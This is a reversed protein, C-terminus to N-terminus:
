SSPGASDHTRLRADQEVGSSAPLIQPFARDGAAPDNAPGSLEALLAAFRSTVKRRDYRGEALRRARQGMATLEGVHAAAWRVATALDAPDAPDAALGVGEEAVLRCLESGPAAVVLVPTGSALIGYLKSPMLCGTLRPDTSVLHLDAASLSQALESKPQYPLFRVNELGHSLEELRARSAGDGVFLFAVEPCDRLQAAAAVVHELCQTLGMNGSHMVVFKGQLGHRERFRNEEKLPVISTTDAWNPLCAIRGEPVGSNVLLSKMDEGLVIVRSARRYTAFLARRLTRTLRGPPVKGLATAVDPYIDQLYMVVQCHHWVRLWDALLPLLFPDTEAVILDPRRVWLAAWGASLFFSVLNLIRGFFSRKGFRFHRVRHIEVGRHRETGRQCYAAQHPNQNPQGAIVAVEFRSSLDECLETLLQGTAEADPWYSRNLFLVRPRAEALADPDAATKKM